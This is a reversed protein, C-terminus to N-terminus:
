KSMKNEIFKIIIGALLSISFYILSSFASIKLSTLFIDGVSIGVKNFIFGHCFILFFLIHFIIITKAFVSLYPKGKVVDEGGFLASFVGFFLDFM